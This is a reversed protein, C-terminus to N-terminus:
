HSQILILPVYIFGSFFVSSITSLIYKAKFTYQSEIDNITILSDFAVKVRDTYFSGQFNFINNYFRSM